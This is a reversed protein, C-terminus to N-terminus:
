HIVESGMTNAELFDAYTIIPQDKIHQLYDSPVMGVWYDSNSSVAM